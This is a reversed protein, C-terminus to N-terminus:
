SVAEIKELTDYHKLIEKGAKMATFKYKSLKKLNYIDRM